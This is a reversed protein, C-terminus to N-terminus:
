PKWKPEGSSWNPIDAVYYAINDANNICFADRNKAKIRSMQMSYWKDDTNMANPFHSVEHILVTLKSEQDFPVGDLSNRENALRCFIPGVFITYTGDPKCVSATSELEGARARPVCGARALNEPSHREFNRERLGRIIERVRVLGERLTDRTKNSTDGFWLEVKDQDSKAWRTLEALREDLLLVAKARLSMMALHFEANTMNPCIRTTDEEYAEDGATEVLKNSAEPTENQYATPQLALSGGSRNVEITFTHQSEIVFPKPSCRCYVRAGTVLITEGMLTFNPKCDNFVPGGEKCKPCTATSGEVAVFKGHHNMHSATCILVGGTSTKDGELLAYRRDPM